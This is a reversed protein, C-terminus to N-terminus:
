SGVMAANETTEESTICLTRWRPNAGCLGGFTRRFHFSYAHALLASQIALGLHDIRRPAYFHTVNAPFTVKNHTKLNM